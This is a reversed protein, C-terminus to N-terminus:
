KSRRRSKPKRKVALEYGLFDLVREASEFTLGREGHVFRSLQSETVGSGRAIAYRSLGSGEIVKVVKNEVESMVWLTGWEKGKSL